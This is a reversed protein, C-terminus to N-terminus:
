PRIARVISDVLLSLDDTRKYIIIPTQKRHPLKHAFRKLKAGTTDPLEDDFLLLSYKIDSEILCQSDRGSPSRVTQCDELAKNLFVVLAHDLGVYLIRHSTMINNARDLTQFSPVALAYSM